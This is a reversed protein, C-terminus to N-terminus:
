STRGTASWHGVHSCCPISVWVRGTGSSTAQCAYRLSDAITAASDWFLALPSACDLVSDRPEAASLNPSAKPSRWDEPAKMTGHRGIRFTLVVICRWGAFDGSQRLM